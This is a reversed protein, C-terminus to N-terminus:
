KGYKIGPCQGGGGMLGYEQECCPCHRVKLQEKTLGVYEDKANKLLEFVYRSLKSFGQYDKGFYVEHFKTEFSRWDEKTKLIKM